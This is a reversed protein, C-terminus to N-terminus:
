SDPERRQERFQMCTRSVGLDLRRNLRGKPSENTMPQRCLGIVLEAAYMGPM